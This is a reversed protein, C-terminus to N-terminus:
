GALSPTTKIQTVTTMSLAWIPLTCFSIAVHRYCLSIICLFCGKALSSCECPWSAMTDPTKLPSAHSLTVQMPLPTVMRKESQPLRYIVGLTSSSFFLVICVFCCCTACPRVGLLAWFLTTKFCHYGESVLMKLIFCVIQVWWLIQFLECKANSLLRYYGNLSLNSPGWTGYRDYSVSAASRSRSPTVSKQLLTQTSAMCRSPGEERPLGAIWKPSCSDEEVWFRFMVKGVLHLHNNASGLLSPM